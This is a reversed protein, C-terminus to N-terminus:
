RRKATQERLRKESAAKSAARNWLRFTEVLGADALIPVCAGRECGLRRCGPEYSHCPKDGCHACAAADRTLTLIALQTENAIDAPGIM